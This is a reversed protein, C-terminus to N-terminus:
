RRVAVSIREGLVTQIRRRSGRLRFASERYGAGEIRYRFALGEGRMVRDLELSYVRNGEIEAIVFDAHWPGMRCEAKAATSALFRKDVYWTPCTDPSLREFGEPITFQGRILSQGARYVRFRHGAENEVTATNVQAADEDFAFLETHWQAPAPAPSLALLSLLALAAGTRGPLPPRKM